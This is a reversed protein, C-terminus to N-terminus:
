ETETDPVNIDQLSWFPSNACTLTLLNEYFEQSPEIGVRSKLLLATGLFYIMSSSEVGGVMIADAGCRLALSGTVKLRYDLGYYVTLATPNKARFAEIAEGAAESGKEPPMAILAAYKREKLKDFFEASSRVHVVKWSPVVELLGVFGSPEMFLLIPEHLVPVNKIEVMGSSITTSQRYRRYLFLVIGVTLIGLGIIIPIMVQIGPTLTFGPDNNEKTSPGTM